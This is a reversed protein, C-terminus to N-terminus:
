VFQERWSQPSGVLSILSKRVQNLPLGVINSYSGEINSIFSLADGQIGYAGAKDLSEGTKLYLTLTDEDILDFEVKSKFCLTSCDQPSLGLSYGTFVYHTKGMLKLLTEKAHREDDPKGLVENESVVITDATLLLPSAKWEEKEIKPFLAEFKQKALDQVMKEPDKEQSVEEINAVRQDFPIQLRSLLEKRRPSGSGLILRYPM